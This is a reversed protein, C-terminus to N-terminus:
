SNKRFFFTCIKPMIKLCFWSILHASSECLWGADNKITYQWTIMFVLIVIKDHLSVNGSMAHPWTSWFERCRSCCYILTKIRKIRKKKGIILLVSNQIQVAAWGSGFDDALSHCAIPMSSVVSLVGKNINFCFKLFNIVNYLAAVFTLFLFWIRHHCDTPYSLPWHSTSWFWFIVTGMIRENTSFARANLPCWQQGNGRSDQEVWRVRDREIEIERERKM